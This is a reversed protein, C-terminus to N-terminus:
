SLLPEQHNAGQKRERKSPSPMPHQPCLSSWCIRGNVLVQGELAQLGPGVGPPLLSAACSMQLPALGASAGPHGRGM